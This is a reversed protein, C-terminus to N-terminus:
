LTNVIESSLGTAQVIIENSVGLSKLKRADELKAVEIGQRMGQQMGAEIGKQMGKELGEQEATYLRNAVDRQFRERAQALHRMNEDQTCHEFQEYAASILKDGSFLVKMDMGEKGANELLSIWQKLKTNRPSAKTLEVYHIQLDETLVSDPNKVDSIMFRHHNEQTEKFLVFDVLNIAVVPRLIGYTSGKELQQSYLQAWYYLSRNVFGLQNNVQMEIDFQRHDEGTARIDLVTEKAWYADRLNVPNKLEISLVPQCEADVLVANVLDLLLNKTEERGFVYLFIYDNVLRLSMGDIYKM